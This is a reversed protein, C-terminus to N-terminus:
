PPPRFPNTCPTRKGSAVVFSAGQWTRMLVCLGQGRRASTSIRPTAKQPGHARWCSAYKAMPSSVSPFCLRRLLGSASTSSLSRRSRSRAPPLRAGLLFLFAILSDRSSVSDLLWGIQGPTHAKGGASYIRGAESLRRRGRRPDRPPPPPTPLLISGRDAALPRDAQRLHACYGDRLHRRNRLEEPM